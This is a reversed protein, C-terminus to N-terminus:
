APRWLLLRCAGTGIGITTLPPMTAASRQARLVGFTLEVTGLMVSMAMSSSFMWAM